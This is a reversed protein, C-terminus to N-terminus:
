AVALQKFDDAAWGLLEERTMWFMGCDPAPGYHLYWTVPFAEHAYGFRTVVGHNYLAYSSFTFLHKPWWKALGLLRALKGMVASMVIGSEDPGRMDPRVWMTGSHFATGTIVETAEHPTNAFCEPTVFRAPEDYFMRMSAMEAALSSGTFDFYRGTHTSAVNGDGDIGLLWFANDDSLTSCTHDVFPMLVTGLHRREEVIAKLVRFDNQPYFRIGRKAALQDLRLFNRAIVGDPDYIAEFWDPLRTTLQPKPAPNAFRPSAM